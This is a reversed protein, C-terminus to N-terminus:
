IDVRLDQNTLLVVDTNVFKKFGAMEATITYTGAPLLQFLYIGDSASHVTRVARTLQNTASVAAGSILAAAPDTVAGIINGNQTQTWAPASILVLLAALWLFALVRSHISRNTLPM